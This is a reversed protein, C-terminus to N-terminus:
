WLRGNRWDRVLLTVLGAASVATLILAAVILANFFWSPFV